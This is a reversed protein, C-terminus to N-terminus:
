EYYTNCAVSEPASNSYFKTNDVGGLMASLAVGGAHIAGNNSNFISDIIHTCSHHSVIGIGRLDETNYFLSNLVDLQFCNTGIAGRNTAYNGNFELNTLHVFPYDTSLTSSNECLKSTAGIGGAFTSGNNEIFNTNEM